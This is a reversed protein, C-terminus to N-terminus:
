ASGILPQAKTAKVAKMLPDYVVFAFFVVLVMAIAGATWHGNPPDEFQLKTQYYVLTALVPGSLWTWAAGWRFWFLARPMLEPVVKKKTDADMTAAFPGNVWNFFYLLGIWVIGWIIHFWRFLMSLYDMAQM